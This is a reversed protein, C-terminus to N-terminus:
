FHPWENEVIEIGKKRNRKQHRYRDFGCLCVCVDREGNERKGQVGDATAEESLRDVGKRVSAPRKNAKQRKTRKRERESLRASGKKIGDPLCAYRGLVAKNRKM